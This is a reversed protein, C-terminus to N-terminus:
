DNSDKLYSIASILSPISDRFHGLGQNCHNCLLGRIKNTTHDHDIHFSTTFLGCIKCKNEQDAKMADYEISTLKYSRKLYNNRSRTKGEPSQKILRSYEQLKSKNQEYYARGRKKNCEACWHARGDKRSRNVHFEAVATQQNCKKCFKM